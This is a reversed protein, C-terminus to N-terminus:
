KNNNREKMVKESREKHKEVDWKIDWRGAYDAIPGLGVEARRADINEPDVVPFVFFEGTAKDRNIQSGYIQEKGNRMAVRDELLALSSGRAKGDKVAERMMPLYHEQTELDAHQIVLFLTTNGRGGVVEAGLWGREDLIKKVAILNVSDKENITKWLAKMEDSDRGFEKEVEGIKMRYSQDEEYIKNLQAVLPKDFYKEAEDKNAKVLTTLESWRKDEYLSKLDTDAILHDYNTYKTKSNALYFLHYFSSDSQASLAYSCAANYRDNPYAKGGLVDFALKYQEASEKFEKKDYLESAAKAHEGYKEMDQAFSLTFCFLGCLALLIRLNM